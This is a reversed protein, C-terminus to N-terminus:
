SFHVLHFASTTNKSQFMLGQVWSVIKQGVINWLVLFFNPLERFHPNVIYSWEWVLNHEHKDLSLGDTAQFIDFWGLPRNRIEAEGCRSCLYVSVNQLPPWFYKMVSFGFGSSRTGLLVSANVGCVMQPTQTKALGCRSPPRVVSALLSVSHVVILWWGTQCDRAKTLTTSMEACWKWFKVAKASGIFGTYLLCAIWDPKVEPPCINVVSFGLVCEM